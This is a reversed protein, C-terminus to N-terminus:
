HLTRLPWTCCLGWPGAELIRSTGWCFSPTPGSREGLIGHCIIFSTSFTQMRCPRAAYWFKSTRRRDGPNGIMTKCCIFHQPGPNRLDWTVHFTSTRPNWPRVAYAFTSTRPNWHRAVYAFTSTRPNWPRAAYPHKLTRPKWPRVVFIVICPGPDM